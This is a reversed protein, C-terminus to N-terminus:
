LCATLPIVGDTKREGGMKQDGAMRGLPWVWSSVLNISNIFTLIEPSLASHSPHHISIFSCIFVRGETLARGKEGDADVM